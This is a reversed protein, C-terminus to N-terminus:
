PKDEKAFSPFREICDRKLREIEADRMDIESGMCTRYEAYELRIREIEAECNLRVKVEGLYAEEMDRLQEIEGAADPPFAYLKTGVPPKNKLWRARRSKRIEHDGFAGSAGIIVDEVVGVPERMAAELEDALRRTWVSTGVSERMERIVENITMTM